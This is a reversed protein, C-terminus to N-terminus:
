CKQVKGGRVASLLKEIWRAGAPSSLLWSQEAELCLPATYVPGLAPGAFGFGTGFCSSWCGGRTDGAAVGFGEAELRGWVCGPWQPEQFM